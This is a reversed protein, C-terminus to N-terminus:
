ILGRIYMGGAAVFDPSSAGRDLIWIAWDVSACNELVGDGTSVVLRACGIYGNEAAGGTDRGRGLVRHYQM